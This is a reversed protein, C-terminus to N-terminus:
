DNEWAQLDIDPLNRCPVVPNRLSPPLFVNRQIENIGANICIIKALTTRQLERLQEPMFSGSQGQHSYFYRDGYKIRNFQVGIITAFLPGVVGGDVPREATGGSFLDIDEVSQYIREFNQLRNPPILVRLDQFSRVRIGFAHRVYAAYGPLGHDRGRLVNLSALDLGTNNGRRRYLLNTIDPVMANDFSQAPQNTIGRLLTTALGNYIDFPYFFNDRLDITSPSGSSPRTQFVTDILSHGFRYAATTFENLMSPNIRPNYRTYGTGSQLNYFSTYEPGLVVPLYEEWTVVQMQAGVIKRAEQFLREDSWTPKMSRLMEAFRNHQRAMITHLSTVGPQQNVRPDGSGFCLRNESPMSCQDSQPTASPPLLEGGRNTMVTRLKGDGSNTRLARSDNANTAYVHSADVFATAENTQQRPGLICNPCMASRVFNICNQNFRSYFPDDERLVIPLCQPHTSNQIPCCNIMGNDVTRSIPTLTIDHDVFQGWSMVMMTYSQAPRDKHRHISLSVDRPVPLPRGSQAVRPVSIGDAYAPPLIRRLCIFSRGWSPNRLNNCSGDFTRYRSEQCQAQFQSVCERVLPQANTQTLDVQTLGFIVEDPTLNLREAIIKTIEEFREKIRELTIARPFTMLFLQHRSEAPHLRASLTRGQVVLQRETARRADIQQNAEAVAQNVIDSSVIPVDVDPRPPQPLQRPSVQGLSYDLSFILLTAVSLWRTDLGAIM